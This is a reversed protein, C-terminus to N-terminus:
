SVESRYLWAVQGAGARDLVEAIRHRNVRGDEAYARALESGPDHPSTRDGGDM